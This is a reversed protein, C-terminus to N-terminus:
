ASHVLKCPYLSRIFRLLGGDLLLFERRYPLLERGLLLDGVLYNYKIAGIVM